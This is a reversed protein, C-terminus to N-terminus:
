TSGRRARGAPPRPRPPRGRPPRRACAGSRCRAARPARNAAARTTRRPLPSPRTVHPGEAARPHLFGHEAGVAPGLHGVSHRVAGAAAGREGRGAALLGRVRPSHRLRRPRRGLGAGRGARGLGLRGTAAPEDGDDHHRNEDDHRRGARRRPQQEGARRERADRQRDAGLPEVARAAGGDGDAHGSRRGRPLVVGLVHLYRAAPRRDLERVPGVLDRDRGRRDRGVARDVVHLVGAGGRERHPVPGGRDVAGDVELRYGGVLHGVLLDLGGVLRREGARGGVLLRGLGQAVGREGPAVLGDRLLTAPAGRAGALGGPARVPGIRATVGGVLLPGERRGREREVDGVRPDPAHANLHIAGVRGDVRRVKGRASTM